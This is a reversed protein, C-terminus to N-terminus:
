LKKIMTNYFSPPARTQIDCNYIGIVVYAKDKTTIITM